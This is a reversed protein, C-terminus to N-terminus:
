TSINAQYILFDVSMSQTTRMTSRHSFFVPRFCQLGSFFLCTCQNRSNRVKTQKQNRKSKCVLNVLIALLKNVPGSKASPLGPDLKLQAQSFCHDAIRSLQTTTDYADIILFYSGGRLRRFGGRTQHTPLCDNCYLKTYSVTNPGRRRQCGETYMQLSM